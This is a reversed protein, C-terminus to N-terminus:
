GPRFIMRPWRPSVKGNRTHRMSWRPAARASFRTLKGRRRRCIVEVDGGAPIERIRRQKAANHFQPDIPDQRPRNATTSFAGAVRHSSVAGIQSSSLTFIRLPLEFRTSRIHAKYIAQLACYAVPDPRQGARHYVGRM